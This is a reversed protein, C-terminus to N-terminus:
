NVYLQKLNNIKQWVEEKVSHPELVKMDDGYSLILSILEPNPIVKIRVIIHDDMETIKQTPHLPKTAIYPARKKNVKLKVEVPEVDKHLTVGIIDYFFDDWNRNHNKNYPTAPMQTLQQIRDLALIWYEEDKTENFCVIYWRKNFQKLYYPHITYRYERDKFDRYHVQLVEENMIAKYIPKIFELGVLDVNQELGIAKGNMDLFHNELLVQQINEIWEGQPLGDISLLTNIASLLIAKDEPSITMDYISTSPDEYRYYRYKGVKKIRIPMNYGDIDRIFNLDNYITKKSVTKGPEKENLMKNVEKRLDDVTYQKGTNQLCQDLIKIRFQQNKNPM